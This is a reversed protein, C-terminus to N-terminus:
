LIRLIFLIVKKLSTKKEQHQQKSKYNKKDSKKPSSKKAKEGIKKLASKDSNESLLDFLSPM